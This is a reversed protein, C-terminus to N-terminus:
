DYLSLNTSTKDGLYFSERKNMGFFYMRESYYQMEQSVTAGIEGEKVSHKHTYTNHQARTRM